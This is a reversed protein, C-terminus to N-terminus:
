ETHFTFLYSDEQVSNLLKLFSCVLGNYGTPLLKIETNVQVLWNMFQPRQRCMEYLIRLNFVASLSAMKNHPKDTIDQM